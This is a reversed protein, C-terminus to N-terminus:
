IDAGSQTWRVTVSLGEEKFYGYYNAIAVQAGLQPARVAALELSSQEIADAAMAEASWGIAGLGALPVVVSLLLRRLAAGRARSVIAVAPGTSRRGLWPPRSGVV